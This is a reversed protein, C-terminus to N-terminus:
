SAGLQLRPDEALVEGLTPWGTGDIGQFAHLYVALLTADYRTLLNNVVGAVLEKAPPAPLTEITGNEDHPIGFGDLFDCLLQKHASVLWIQLLHAALDANAKRSIQERVWLHQEKRPKRTIFIPRFKRQQALSNVATQYLPKENEQLFHFLGLATEVPMKAFIEHPLLM